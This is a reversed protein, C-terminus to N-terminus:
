ASDLMQEPVLFNLARHSVQADLHIVSQLDGFLDLDSIGPCLQRARGVPRWPSFTGYAAKLMQSFIHTCIPEGCLPAGSLSRYGAPREIFRVPELDPFV